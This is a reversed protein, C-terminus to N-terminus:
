RIDASFQRVFAEFGKLKKLKVRSYDLPRLKQKADSENQAAVTGEEMFEEGRTPMVRYRYVPM